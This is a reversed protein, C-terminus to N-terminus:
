IAAHLRNLQNWVCDVSIAIENLSNGPFVCGLTPVDHTLEETFVSSFYANLLNAADSDNDSLAGDPKLLEGIVHRTKTKIIKSNM